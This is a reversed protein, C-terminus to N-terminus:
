ALADWDLGTDSDSLDAGDDWFNNSDPIAAKDEPQKLLKWTYADVNSPPKEPKQLEPVPGLTQETTADAFIAMALAIVFDKGNTEVRGLSDVQLSAVQKLTNESRINVRMCDPDMYGVMTDIILKSNAANKQLFFRTAISEHTSHQVPPIYWREEPYKATRLAAVPGHARNREINILAYNYYKGLEAVLQGFQYNELRSSVEAVQHLMMGDRRLICITSLDMDTNAPGFTAGDAVDGGLIYEAGKVVTEWRQVVGRPRKKFQIVTM